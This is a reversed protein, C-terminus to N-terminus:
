SSRQPSLPLGMAFLCHDTAIESDPFDVGTNKDFARHQIAEAIHPPQIMESVELDAMESVEWPGNLLPRAEHGEGVDAASLGEGVVAGRDEYERAKANDRDPTEANGSCQTASLDRFM